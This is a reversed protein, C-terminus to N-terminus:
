LQHMRICAHGLDEIGSIEEGRFTFIDVSDSIYECLSPEDLYNFNPDSMTGSKIVQHDSMLEGPRLM